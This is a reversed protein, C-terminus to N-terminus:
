TNLYTEQGVQGRTELAHQGTM